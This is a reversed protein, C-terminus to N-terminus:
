QEKKMSLCTCVGVKKLASVKRDHKDENGEGEGGINAYLAHVYKCIGMEMCVDIPNLVKM